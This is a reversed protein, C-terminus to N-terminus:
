SILWGPVGLSGIKKKLNLIFSNVYKIKKEKIGKSNPSMSLLGGESWSEVFKERKEETNKYNVKTTTKLM